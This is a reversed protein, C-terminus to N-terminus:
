GQSFDMVNAPLTQAAPPLINDTLLWVVVDGIPDGSKALPDLIPGLFYDNHEPVRLKKSPTGQLQAVLTWAFEVVTLDPRQRRM